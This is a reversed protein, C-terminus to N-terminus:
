LSQCYPHIICSGSLLSRTHYSNLFGVNLFEEHKEHSTFVDGSRFRLLFCFSACTVWHFLSILLFVMGIRFCFQLVFASGLDPFSSFLFSILVM